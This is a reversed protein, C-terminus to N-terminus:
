EEQKGVDEHDLLSDIGPVIIRPGTRVTQTHTCTQGSQYLTATSRRAKVTSLHTRVARQHVTTFEVGSREM